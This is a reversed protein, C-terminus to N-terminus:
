NVSTLFTSISYRYLYTLLYTLLGYMGPLGLLYLADLWQVHRRDDTYISRQM